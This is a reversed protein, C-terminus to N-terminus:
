SYRFPELLERKFDIFERLFTGKEKGLSISLPFNNEEM